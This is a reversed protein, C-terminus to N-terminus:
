DPVKVRAARRRNAAAARDLEAGAAQLDAATKSKEPRPEFPRYDLQDPRSERIFDPAAPPPKRIGLAEVLGGILRGGTAPTAEQASAAGAFVLLAAALTFRLTTM